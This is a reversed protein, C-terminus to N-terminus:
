LYRMGTFKILYYLITGFMIAYVITFIIYAIYEKKM